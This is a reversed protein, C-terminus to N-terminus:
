GGGSEHPHSESLIERAMLKMVAITYEDVLARHVNRVHEDAADCFIDDGCIICRCLGEQVHRIIPKINKVHKYSREIILRALTRSRTKEMIRQMYGRIQMKTLPYRRELVSPSADKVFHEYLVDVVEMRGALAKAVMYSVVSYVRGKSLVGKRGGAEGKNDSGKRM